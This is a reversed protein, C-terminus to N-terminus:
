EAPKRFRYVVKDTTGRVAEDFVNVTRDDDPNRLVESEGDFVFGAAEFDARVVAPDIRHLADVVERTDGGPEAVHEIVGVVGGPAMAQYLDAVYDAPEMRPLGYEESEWYADHYVMSLMAFDLSGDPFDFARIDGYQLEVNSNRDAVGTIPGRQDEPLQAPMTAIVRGEPGVARALLETYYGSSAYIDAVTDGPEVGFFTLIEVPHRDADQAVAEEPRGPATLLDAPLSAPAAEAAEVDTAASDEAQGCAALGLALASACILYPRM